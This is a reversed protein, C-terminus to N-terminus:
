FFIFGGSAQSMEAAKAALTTVAVLWEEISDWNELTKTVAIGTGYLGLLGLVYEIMFPPRWEYIPPFGGNDNKQGGKRPRRREHTAM